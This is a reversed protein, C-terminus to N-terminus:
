GTRCGAGSAGARSRSRIVLRPLQAASVANVLASWGLTTVSIGSEPPVKAMVQTGSSGPLQSKWQWTAKWVEINREAFPDGIRLVRGSGIMWRVTCPIRPMTSATVTLGPGTWPAGGPLPPRHARLNAEDRLGGRLPEAAHEVLHREHSCSPARGGGGVRHRDRAREQHELAALRHADRDDVPHPRRGSHVPVPDLHRRVAVAHRVPAPAALSAGVISGPSENTASNVGGRLPVNM